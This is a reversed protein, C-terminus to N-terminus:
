PLLLPSGDPGEKGHKILPWFSAWKFPRSFEGYHCGTCSEAGVPRYTFLVKGGSERQRVHESGPGHCSECGVGTMKTAAYERRYGSPMGFGVTHCPICSPDADTSKAALAAFARAHPSAQWIKYANAHCHACTESGVYTAPPVVGPVADDGHFGAADVDLKTQRIEDRYARSRALTDADMPMKDDLFVISSNNVELEKQPNWKVDLMGVAKSENTTYYILSRNEKILRQAPERVRGGLIIDFEYFEHALQKMAEESAFALLVTMDAKGRITPLVRALAASMPEVALGAGLSEIEAPPELVGVLAVKCGQYDVIKYAPFLPRGTETDTLNACLMPVPSSDRLKRLEAAPLMAEHQGINLAAYNMDAYIRQLYRYKLVQFDAPGEITDGVDVLLADYFRSRKLANWRAIGGYQGSFCGCPEIRGDMDCTFCITLQKSAAGPPKPSCSVLGAAAAAAILAVLTFCRRTRTGTTNNFIWRTFSPM